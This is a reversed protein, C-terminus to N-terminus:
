DAECAEDSVKSHHPYELNSLSQAVDYDRVQVFENYIEVMKDVDPIFDKQPMFHAHMYQFCICFAAQTDAQM